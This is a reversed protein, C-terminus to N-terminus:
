LFRFMFIGLGRRHFKSLIIRVHVDTTLYAVTFTFIDNFKLTTVIVLYNFFSGIVQPIERERVDM